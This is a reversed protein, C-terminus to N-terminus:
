PLGWPNTSFCAKEVYRAVWEDLYEASTHTAGPVTTNEKDYPAGWGAWDHVMEHLITSALPGCSASNCAAKGLTIVGKSSWGGCNTNTTSCKVTVKNFDIKKNFTKTGSEGQVKYTFKVDKCAATTKADAKKAEAEVDTGSCFSKCSKDVTIKSGSYLLGILGGIAGGILAGLPGFLVGGAIAGGAAGLLGGKVSGQLSPGDLRHFRPRESSSASFRRLVSPQSTAPGAHAASAAMRDAEREYADGPQDVISMEQLPSAVGRQQVVHTLEHSVLQDTKRNGPAYQGRAFAIHHGVTYAQANVAEASQAARGGTHVRVHSFDHGFRPEALARIGPDLPRGPSRLVDYVIHPVQRTATPGAVRRQM